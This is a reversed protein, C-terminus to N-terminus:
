SSTMMHVRRVAQAPEAVDLRFVRIEHKPMAAKIAEMMFLATADLVVFSAPWDVFSPRRWEISVSCNSGKGKVVLCATVGPIANHTGEHALALLMQDLNYHAHNRSSFERMLRGGPLPPHPEKKHAERLAALAAD